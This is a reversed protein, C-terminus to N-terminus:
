TPRKFLSEDIPVNIKVDTLTRELIVAAGRHVVTKFAVQIGDVARYDSYSEETPVKGIAGPQEVIYRAGAIMGTSRDVLLDVPALGDGSLELTDIQGPQQAPEASVLRTRLKGEAARLLLSVLERSANSRLNDRGAPALDHVGAADRMWADSGALVQTLDGNPLKADVRFRDPYEIYSTMQAHIPQPTQVIMTGSLVVTRVARLRDAGGKARIARRLVAQAERQQQDVVGGAAVPRVARGGGVVARRRLDVTTTEAVRGYPQNEVRMRREEKVVEREREFTDKDIRLSAMRDAELGQTLGNDLELAKYQLRPPRVAADPANTFLLFLEAVAVALPWPRRPM